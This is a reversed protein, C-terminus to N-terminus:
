KKMRRVSKHINRRKTKRKGFKSNKTKTRTRQKEKNKTKKITRRKKSKKGGFVLDKFVNINEFNDAEKNIEEITTDDDRGTENYKAIMFSIYHKKRDEESLNHVEESQLHINAWEGSFNNFEARDIKKNFLIQLDEYIKKDYIENDCTNDPCVAFASDGILFYFRELIGKTCSMRELGEGQSYAYYCDNVFAALYFKIFDDPQYLIFDVTKGILIRNEAETMYTTNEVRDFIVKLQDKLPEREQQVYKEDIYNYIKNKVHEILNPQILYHNDEKVSPCSEIIEFYKKSNKQFHKNFAEHIETAIEADEDEDEDEEYQLNAWNGNNLFQRDLSDCGNFMYRVNAENSVDWDNLQQNFNRCNEFMYEMGEVKSVNWDNLPQNFNRCNEFMFAMDTVESVDWDNLPQNFIECDSFMKYMSKVKSVNWKNLPQNFISCGVFMFNLMVEAEVNVNITWDNLPQNFSSCNEFMSTMDTVESVDWDNLPQDFKSCGAFMAEMKEVNSVNWENLPQDFKSCDFFMYSMNKVKSVNWGNLPEDFEYCYKFIGTMNTVESVNWNNILYKHDKQTLKKNEIYVRNYYINILMRINTDNIQQYKKDGSHDILLKLETFTTFKLM